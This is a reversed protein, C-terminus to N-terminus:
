HNPPAPPLEMQHYRYFLTLQKQIVAPNMALIPESGDGQYIPLDKKIRWLAEEKSVVYGPIHKVTIEAAEEPHAMEYHISRNLAYVYCALVNPNQKYFDATVTSADFYDHYGIATFPFFTWNMFGNRELIRPQNESFGSYYDIAGAMLADPTAGATMIQLDGPALNLKSEVVNAIFEGGPTVGIKRGKLDDRGIQRTSRQTQPISRDIGIWGAPTEKLTACIMKLDAGTRSNIVFLVTEPPGVYVDVRGAVLSSLTDRNPGGELFHIDLGVDSFFGKDIGVYWPTLEDNLVWYLGINLTRRPTIAAPPPAGPKPIFDPLVYRHADFREAVDKEGQEESLPPATASDGGSNTAPSQNKDPSPSCASLALTLFSLSLWSRRRFFKVIEAPQGQGM